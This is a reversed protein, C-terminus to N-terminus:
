RKIGVLQKLLIWLKGWFDAKKYEWYRKKKYYDDTGYLPPDIWCSLLIWDKNDGKKVIVTVTSNGYRRTLEYSDPNKGPNDTEPKNFTEVVMEKKLGRQGLREQAHNTWILM